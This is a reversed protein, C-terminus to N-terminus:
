VEAAFLSEKVTNKKSKVRTSYIGMAIESSTYRVNPRTLSLRVMTVRQLM